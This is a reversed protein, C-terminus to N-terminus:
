KGKRERPLNNRSTIPFLITQYNSNVRSSYDFCCSTPCQHSCSFIQIWLKDFALHICTLINIRAFIVLLLMHLMPTVAIHWRQCQRGVLRCPILDIFCDTLGPFRIGSCGTNMNNCNVDYTSGRVFLASEFAFFRCCTAASRGMYNGGKLVNDMCLCFVGWFLEM